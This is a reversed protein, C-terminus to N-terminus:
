SRRVSVHLLHVTYPIGQETELTALADRVANDCEAKRDAPIDVLQGEVRVWWSWHHDLTDFYTHYSETVTLADPEFGQRFLKVAEDLALQKRLSVAKVMAAPRLYRFFIPTTKEIFERGNQRGIFTMDMEGTRGLVRALEAVSRDLDTTWHFALISYLYDTSADDLPLDEFGGALVRVNPHGANREAAIKRMNDAPEIGVFQVEHPSAAALDHLERGTGCGVEVVTRYAEVLRILGLSDHTVRGWCSTINDDGDYAAALRSYTEVVPNSSTM